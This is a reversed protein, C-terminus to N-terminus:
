KLGLASKLSAEVVSPRRNPPNLIGPVVLNRLFKTSKSNRLSANRGLAIGFLFTELFEIDAHSNASPKSFRGGPTRKAILFLQPTVGSKGHIANDYHNIKHSVLAETRFTGKTTRGVYWPLTGRRAKICYVYCGCADSLGPVTTDVAQWFERRAKADSDILGKRAHPLDFPGHTSFIM